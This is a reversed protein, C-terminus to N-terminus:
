YGGVMDGFIFCTTIDYAGASTVPSSVILAGAIIICLAVAILNRKMIYVEM